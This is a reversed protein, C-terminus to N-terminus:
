RVECLLQWRSKITDFLMNVPVVALSRAERMAQAHVHSFRLLRHLNLGLSGRTVFLSIRCRCFALTDGRNVKFRAQVSFRRFASVFLPGRFPTM